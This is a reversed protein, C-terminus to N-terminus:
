SCEFPIAITILSYETFMHKDKLLSLCKESLPNFTHSESDFTEEEEVVM